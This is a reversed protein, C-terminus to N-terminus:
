TRVSKSVNPYLAEPYGLGNDGLLVKSGNPSTYPLTIPTQSLDATANLIGFPNGTGNRSFITVQLLSSLGGSALAGTVDNNAAAWNATTTNGKYFSRLANQLLIRTVITSCTSEILLLDSAIQAAKLSATLQLSKSTIGVVFNHNNVWTAIALVALPILSTLLVVAALQERIGVRM